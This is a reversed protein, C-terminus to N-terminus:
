DRRIIKIPFFFKKYITENKEKVKEVYSSQTYIIDNSNVEVIKYNKNKIKNLLYGYEEILIFEIKEKLTKYKKLKEILNIVKDYISQKMDITELEDGYYGPGWCPEWNDKDYLKNLRLIRDICYIDVENDFGYVIENIKNDRKYELSNTDFFHSFIINSMSSIDVNLIKVDNIRYCRCIGEDYCGHNECDYSGNIDYSILDIFNRSLKEIPM